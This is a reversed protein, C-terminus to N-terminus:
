RNDNGEVRFHTKGWGAIIYTIQHLCYIKYWELCHNLIQADMQVIRSVVLGVGTSEVGDLGNM